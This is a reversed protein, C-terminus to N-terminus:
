QNSTVNERAVPLFLLNVGILPAIFCEAPWAAPDEVVVM